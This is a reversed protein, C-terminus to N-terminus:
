NNLKNDIWLQLNFIIKTEGKVKIHTFVANVVINHIVEIKAWEILANLSLNVDHKKALYTYMCSLLSPLFQSLVVTM